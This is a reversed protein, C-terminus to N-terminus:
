FEPLAKEEGVFSEPVYSLAGMGSTGVISLREIPTLVSDDIGLKRLMRNLLYRGYGDPLSDKFIGFNGGFLNM